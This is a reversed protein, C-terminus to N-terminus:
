SEFLASVSVERFTDERFRWMWKPAGIGDGIRVKLSRRIKEGETTIEILGAEHLHKALAHRDVPFEQGKERAARVVALYSAEPDLDVRGPGVCGIWGDKNVPKWRDVERVWGWQDADEPEKRKHDSLHARGSLLSAGILEVFLCEPRQSALLERHDTMSRSLAEFAKRGRADAEDETMAGITVAFRFFTALGTLLHAAQSPQRMHSSADYLEKRLGYYEEEVEAARADYDQALWAVYARMAGALLARREQLESLRAVDAWGKPAEVAFMRSSTSHQGMLREGTAMVMGRPPYSPRNRMTRDMRDRAKRNGVGRLLKDAVATIAEADRRNSTPYFDDIVLLADKAGHWLRELSNPTSTFSGPLQNRGVPGWHSQALAATESKFTGSAGWIWVVFDPEDARFMSVLPALYVSALVPVTVVEAGLDLISLSALVCTKADTEPDELRYRELSKELEVQVSEDPGQPGIAGAGTLYLWRDEHEKWGTHCYVTRQKVDGSLTQFAARCLDKVGNGPAVIASAGLRDPVWNLGPFDSAPVDFTAVRGRTRAQCRFLKRREAGDDQDIEELIAVTFNCLERSITEAQGNVVKVEKRYTSGESEFYDGAVRGDAVASDEVIVPLPGALAFMAAADHGAAFWDDMGVKRGDGSPFIVFRVKAGRRDLMNALRDLAKRVGAKAMVDSDFAVYVLRDNLAIRDWDSLEVVGGLENRGRTNWVGLLAVATLGRSVASDGKKIGETVILPVSPDSLRPRAFPHVDLRMGTKAPTEYKVSKGDLIRPVDPRVQYTGIEGDVTWLPIVLAPVSRQKEGFGLDQLDRKTTATWYGRSDAVEPSIASESLISRRHADCLERTM